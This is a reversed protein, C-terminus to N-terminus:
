KRDEKVGGARKQLVRAIAKRLPTIDSSKVVYEEAAWAMFNDRYQSYGTNIIIPVSKDEGLIRSMSELGDMRETLNIDMIVIDPKGKKVLEIATKGDHAVMVEHGDASLEVQYLLSLNEEDEVLLIKAM